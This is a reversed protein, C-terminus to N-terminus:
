FIYRLGIRHIAEYSERLAADDDDDNVQGEYWIALGGGMNHFVGFTTATPTAEGGDDEQGYGFHVSTGDAVDAGLWLTTYDTDSTTKGAADTKENNTWGLAGWFQGLSVKGSVGIWDSDKSEHESMEAAFGLEINDTLSAKLGIAGGNGAPGQIDTDSDNAKLDVQLSLPGVANAYKITNSHRAGTTGGIGGEWISQDMHLSGKFAAGQSGITVKGFGGSLGVFGLRTTNKGTSQDAAVQIELQAHGVLGNGLDSNAKFGFRSGLSDVDVTSEKDGEYSKSVLANHVHGYVTLESEAQVGLPIM